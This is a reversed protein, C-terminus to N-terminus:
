TDEHHCGAGHHMNNMMQLIDQIIKEQVEDYYYVTASSNGMNTNKFDTGASISNYDRVGSAVSTKLDWRIKNQDDSNDIYSDYNFQCNQGDDNNYDDNSSEDDYTETTSPCTSENPMNRTAMVNPITYSSSSEDNTDFTVSEDDDDDEEIFHNNDIVISAEFFKSREESLEKQYNDDQIQSLQIAEKILREEEAEEDDYVELHRTELLMMRESEEIATRLMLEEETEEERLLLEEQQQVRMSEEIAKRLEDDEDDDNDIADHHNDLEQTSAALTQQFLKYEQEQQQKIKSNELISLRCIEDFDEEEKRTLEEEYQIDKLSRIKLKAIVEMYEDDIVVNKKKTRAPTKNKKITNSLHSHTKNITTRVNNTSVAATVAAFSGAGTATSKTNVDIIQLKTDDPTHKMTLFQIGSNPNVLFCGSMEVTYEMQRRQFLSEIATRLIPGGSLGSHSGAGTVVRCWMKTMMSASRQHLLRRNHHHNHHHNRNRHNHQEWYPQRTRSDKKVGETDNDDYGHWRQGHAAHQQQLSKHLQRRQEELFDTVARLAKELRYGHLDLVPVHTADLAVSSTRDHNPIRSNVICQERKELLSSAPISSSIYNITKKDNNSPRTKTKKQFSHNNGKKNRNTNSSGSLKRESHIKAQAQQQQQIQQQYQIFASM